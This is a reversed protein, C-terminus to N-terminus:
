PTVKPKRPRKAAAKQAAVELARRSWVVAEDPDDLASEPMSWYGMTMTQGDKTPYTFQRAGDVELLAALEADAKLWIVGDDLIAFMLDDAYLGAAGFMRGIRLVGLGGLHELVWDGFAADYAM